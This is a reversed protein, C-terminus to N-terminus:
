IFFDAEVLERSMRAIWRLQVIMTVDGSFLAFFKFHNIKTM